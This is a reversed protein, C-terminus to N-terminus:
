IKTQVYWYTKWIEFNFKRYLDMLNTWDIILNKCGESYLKDIASVLLNYAINKHRYDRDVGLPGVGGLKVFRDRWTLSYGILNINTKYSATRCFGCVNQESDLCILYDSGDGGNEQYDLFEVLWRGPFNREFFDIIKPFDNKNGFRIEYNGHDTYEKLESKFGISNLLDNTQYLAEFGRKTFWELSSKLDVPLGPFFNQYDKGLYVTEVGLKKFGEFSKNLLETGIGQKRFAKAVFLLSIWGVNQYSEINVSHEWVKNFIFGVPKGDVLAVYSNNPLFGKTLFTNRNLLEESIPFIFGYEDNWLRSLKLVEAKLINSINKFELM